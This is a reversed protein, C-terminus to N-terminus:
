PMEQVLPNKHLMDFLIGAMIERPYSQKKDEYHYYRFIATCILLAFTKFVMTVYKSDVILLHEQVYRRM